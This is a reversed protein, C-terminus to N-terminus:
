PSGPAAPAPAPPTPPVAAPDPVSPDAEPAPAVTPSPLTRPIEQLLKLAARHRPTDELAMLVQRRAEGNGTRHLVAALRYHIEATNPPELALLTRLATIATADDGTKDAAQALYKWGTAILPNVALFRRAQRTVTPWDGSASALDMLRQTVDPAAAEKAAIHTLVTTEEPTENLKRHVQALLVRASGPGTQGPYLDILKQLPAKAESWAGAEMLEEAQRQLVWLNVPRERMWTRLAEESEPLLLTPEPQQWDLAPALNQALEKAHIAFDRELTEMPAVRKALVANIEQGEGLDQLVSKLAGPGYQNIIFEVVLSSEYYAFQLHLASPPALFAGSLASVPTLKGSLIMERYEENMHEGWSPDAQREEYVSIGESLWRPMRNRTSQLTVVHCFEHWLVAEWNVAAGPRASPSTATVVRGFCVGLYGPNDPMGFTRVGFDKETPFIEVITPSVIDIGYKTGLKTRAEGLLELVRSGYVPAEKAAMRVVFHDNRLTAFDTKMADHLTMLNFSAVNYADDAQVKAALKWGEDEEGLRLLDSALQAEAPGYDPSFELAKRQHAVGEAFRYKQSLKRGILHDPLPNSAYFKLAEARAASEGAPDNKLHALVARYSWMEPRHPNVKAVRDLLEAAETYKEADIWHDALRLLSPVHSPNVKLAAELNAQMAKRDSPAFARALGCLFDPDDPFTKLGAQFTKAALAFDNKELALEGAALQPERADPVLKRAADFIKTLVTKPDAGRLIMVKGHVVISQVDRYGARRFSMLREIDSVAEEARATDGNALFVERAAWQLQLSRGDHALAQEATQLAQPYMGQAMLAELRILFWEETQSFPEKLAEDAAALAPGYGGAKLQARAKVADPEQAWGSAALALGVVAAATLAM